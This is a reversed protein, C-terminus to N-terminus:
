ILGSAQRLLGGVPAWRDRDQDGPEALAQEACKTEDLRV